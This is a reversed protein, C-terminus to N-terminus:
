GLRAPPPLPAAQAPPGAMLGRIEESGISGPLGLCARAAAQRGGAEESAPRSARDLEWLAAAAAPVANRAAGAVDSAGGDRTGGGRAVRWGTAASSSRPLATLHATSCASSARPSRWRPPALKRWSGTSSVWTPSSSSFTFPPAPAPQVFPPDDVNRSGVHRGPGALGHLGAAWCCCLLWEPFQTSRM